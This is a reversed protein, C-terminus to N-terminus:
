KLFMGAIAAREPPSPNRHPMKALVECAYQQLEVLEPISRM